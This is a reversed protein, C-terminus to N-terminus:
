LMDGKDHMSALLDDFDEMTGFIPDIQRFDEVDYGFDRMPSKYFPSHDWVAKINLYEFHSLKEEIGSALCHIYPWPKKIQWM